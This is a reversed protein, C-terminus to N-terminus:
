GEQALSRETRFSMVGPVREGYHDTDEEATISVMIDDDCSRVITRLSGKEDLKLLLSRLNRRSLTVHVHNGRVTADM